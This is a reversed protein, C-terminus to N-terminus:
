RSSPPLVVKLIAIGGALKALRERLEEEDYTSPLRALEARLADVRAAIKENDGGGDVFTTTDKNVVVKRAHGLQALTLEELKLDLEESITQAGTLIAIDRLV